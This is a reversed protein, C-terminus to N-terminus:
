RNADKGAMKIALKIAEEMSGSDAIGKGSIDFATGHDPSTRIIPLGATYNVAKGFARMKLPILGQDHYMVLYADFKQSDVSAFLSDAPYPGQVSVGEKVALQIAPEIYNKEESGFIGNEGAHPNLGTVAIRPTPINFREKLDRNLTKIKKLITEVSLLRPVESIACHTTVTAVRFNGKLLIMLFDNAKCRDAFFETHGPYNYGASNFSSKCIPATVIADCQKNQVSEFALELAQGSVLGSARTTVGPSLEIKEFNGDDLVEIVKQQPLGVRIDSIKKLHVDSFLIKQYYLFVEIPGVLVPRFGIKSAKNSVAKLVVEPGIGNPDGVTIAITPHANM